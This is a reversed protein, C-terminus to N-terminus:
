EEDGWVTLLYAKTVFDEELKFEWKDTIDMHKIPVRLRGGNVHAAWKYISNTAKSLQEVAKKQSEIKERLGKIIEQDTQFLNERSNELKKCKEKLEEIEAQMSEASRKM